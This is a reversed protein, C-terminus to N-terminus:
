LDSRRARSSVWGDNAGANNVLGLLKGYRERVYDVGAQVPAIDALHAEVFDCKRRTNLM